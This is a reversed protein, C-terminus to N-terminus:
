WIKYKSVSSLTEHSVLNVGAETRLRQVEKDELFGNILNPDEAESMDYVKTEDDNTCAFHVKLKYKDMLPKLEVDVLHLWRDFGKTIEFTSLFKMHFEKMTIEVFCGEAIARIQVGLLSHIVM